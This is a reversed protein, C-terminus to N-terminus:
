EDVDNQVNVSAIEELELLLVDDLEECCQSMVVLVDLVIEM